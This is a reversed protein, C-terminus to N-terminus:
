GTGTPPLGAARMKTMLSNPAKAQTGNQRGITSADFNLSDRHVVLSVAGLIIALMAAFSLIRKLPGQKQLRKKKKQKKKQELTNM